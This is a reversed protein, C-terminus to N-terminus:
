CMYAAYICSYKCSCYNQGLTFCKATLDFTLGLKAWGRFWDRLAVSSCAKLRLSILNVQSLNALETALHITISQLGFETTSSPPNISAKCIADESVM